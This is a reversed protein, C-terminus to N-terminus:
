ANCGLMASNIDSVSDFVPIGLSRARELEAIVGTSSDTYPLVLVADSKELWAMSVNKIQEETIDGSLFLQLDIGPIYPSYGNEILQVGARIMDRVNYLYEVAPNKTDERSGRPTLPGAVYVREIYTGM